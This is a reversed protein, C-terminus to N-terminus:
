ANTYEEKDIGSVMSIRTFMIKTSNKEEEINSKWFFMEISFSQKSSM